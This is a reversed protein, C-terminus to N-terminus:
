AVTAECAEDEDNPVLWSYTEKWDRNNAAVTRNGAKTNLTKANQFENEVSFKM